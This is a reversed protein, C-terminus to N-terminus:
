MLYGSSSQWQGGKPGAVQETNLVNRMIADVGGKTLNYHTIIEPKDNDFSKSYHMSSLLVVVKYKKPVYSILTMNKTFGFLTGEVGVKRHRNPKFQPPIEKKFKKMTGIYTLGRNQLEEVLEVSTFWNDVTINRNTNIIPASLRLVAQTPKSFKRINEGLGNGHSDKGTYAYGNYFYNNRADKM